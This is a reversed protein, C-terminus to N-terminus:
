GLTYIIIVEIALILLIADEGQWGVAAKGRGPGNVIGTGARSEDTGARSEDHLVATPLLDAIELLFPLRGFRHEAAQHM